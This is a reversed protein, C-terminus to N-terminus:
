KKLLTRIYKKLNRPAKALIFYYIIKYGVKKWYWEDVAKYGNDLYLKMVETRYPNIETSELLNKNQKAITEFDTVVYDIDNSVNQFIRNGRETNILCFSIGTQEDLVGGNELLCSPLNKEVGWFDGLTIDGVRNPSAYKCHYCNERYIESKIYLNYFSSLKYYLSSSKVESNKKYKYRADLGWGISKDRFVFDIIQVKKKEELIRIYDQFIQQTSVGHCVIDMLCLNEYDKQLFNRLAAVQCPTGSFVVKLGNILDDKVKKYTNGIESHVYKSGQILHLDQTDDIRIHRVVLHGNEYLMAAGYAVGGKSLFDYAIQAFMGGSASKNKRARNKIAAGYALIAKHGYINENKKQFDCVRKCVGCGICITMDIRPYVCGIADQEMAIASKPCINHCAACGCCDRKDDFLVM